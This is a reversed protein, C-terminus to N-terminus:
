CLGACLHPLLPRPPPRPRSLPPSFCFVQGSPLAAATSCREGGGRGGQVPAGRLLAPCVTPLGIICFASAPTAWCSSSQAVGRHRRQFSLQLSTLGLHLAAPRPSPGRGRAPREARASGCGTAATPHRRRPRHHAPLGSLFSPGRRRPRSTTPSAQGRRAFVDDPAAGAALVGVSRARAGGGGSSAALCGGAGAGRGAMSAGFSSSPRM